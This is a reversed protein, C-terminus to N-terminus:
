PALNAAVHERDCANGVVGNHVEIDLLATNARNAFVTM